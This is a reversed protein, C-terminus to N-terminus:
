ETFGASKPEFVKDVFAPPMDIHTVADDAGAREPLRIGKFVGQFAKLGNRAELM